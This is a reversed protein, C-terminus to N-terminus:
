YRASYERFVHCFVSYVVFFVANKLYITPFERLNFGGGNGIVGSKFIKIAASQKRVGELKAVNM